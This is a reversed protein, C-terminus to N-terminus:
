ISEIQYKIKKGHMDAVFQLLSARSYGTWYGETYPTHDKEKVVIVMTTPDFGTKVLFDEVKRYLTARYESM